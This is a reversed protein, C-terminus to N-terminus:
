KAMGDSDRRDLEAQAAQIYAANKEPDQQWTAIMNNLEETSLSQIMGELLKNRVDKAQNDQELNTIQGAQDIIQADKAQNDQQLTQQEEQLAELRGYSSGRPLFAGVVTSIFSIGSFIVLCMVVTYLRNGGRNKQKM